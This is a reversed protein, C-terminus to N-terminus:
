LNLAKKVSNNDIKIDTNFLNNSPTTTTTTTM